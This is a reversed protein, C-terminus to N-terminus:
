RVIVEVRRNKANAVNDATKVLPNEEGHSSVDILTDDVGNAVLLRKVAKARRMSLDLNYAKDGMTDTHGVVSIRTPARQHIAAVIGPLQRGSAPLLQVSDSLFHLVFHVPPPPQNSVVQGFLDQVHAADLSVPADPPTKRSRVVTSQNPQSIDVSGADNSVTIQGVSGDADPVLVVM